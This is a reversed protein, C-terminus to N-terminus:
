VVTDLVEWSVHCKYCFIAFSTINVFYQGQAILSFSFKRSDGSQCYMYRSCLMLLLILFILLQGHTGTMKQDIIYSINCIM